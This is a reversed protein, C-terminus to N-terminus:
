LPKFFNNPRNSNNSFKLQLMLLFVNSSTFTNNQLLSSCVLISHLVKETGHKYWQYTKAASQSTAIHKLVGKFRQVQTIKINCTFFLCFGMVCVRSVPVIFRSWKRVSTKPVLKKTQFSFIQRRFYVHSFAIYVIFEYNTILNCCSIVNFHLCNDDVLWLDDNWDWAHCKRAQFLVM